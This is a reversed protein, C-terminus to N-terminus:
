TSERASLTNLYSRMNWSPGAIEARPLATQIQRRASIEPYSDKLFEVEINVPMGAPLCVALFEFNSAGLSRVLSM